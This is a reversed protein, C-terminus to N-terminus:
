GSQKNKSLACVQSCIVNKDSKYSRNLCKVPFRCPFHWKQVCMVELLPELVVDLGWLVAWQSSTQIVTHARSVCLCVFLTFCVCNLTCTPSSPFYSNTIYIVQIIYWHQGWFYHTIFFLQGTGPHYVLMWYKIFPSASHANCSRWASRSVQYVGSFFSM